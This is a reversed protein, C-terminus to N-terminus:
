KPVILILEICTLRLTSVDDLKDGSRLATLCDRRNGSMRKSSALTSNPLHWHMSDKDLLLTKHRWWCSTTSANHKGTTRGARQATHHSHRQKTSSHWHFKGCGNTMHIPTASFTNLTLDSTLAAVLSFAILASAHRKITHSVQKNSNGM